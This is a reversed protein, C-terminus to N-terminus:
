INKHPPQRGQIIVLGIALLAMGKLIAAFGSDIYKQGWVILSFPLLNNLLGM